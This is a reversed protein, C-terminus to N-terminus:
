AAIDDTKVLANSAQKFVADGKQKKVLLTNEEQEKVAEAAMAKIAAKELGVTTTPVSRLLELEGNENKRAIIFAYETGDSLDVSSNEFKVSQIPEMAALQEKINVTAKELANINNKREDSMVRQRKIEEVGNNNSIFDSLDKPDIEKQVAALLTQTYNYSRKRDSNFIYRVFVTLKNTNNQIRIGRKALIPKMQEISEKVCNNEEASKYLSYVKTLLEYLEINTRALTVTEFHEREKYLADAQEIVSIVAEVKKEAKKTM